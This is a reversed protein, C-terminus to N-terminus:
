ISQASFVDQVFREDTTNSLAQLTETFSPTRSLFVVQDLLVMGEPLLRIAM